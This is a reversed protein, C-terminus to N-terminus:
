RFCPESALREAQLDGETGAIVKSTGPIRVKHNVAVHSPLRPLSSQQRKCPDELGPM